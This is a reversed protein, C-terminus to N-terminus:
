KGVFIVSNTEELVLLNHSTGAVAIWFAARIISLEFTCQM